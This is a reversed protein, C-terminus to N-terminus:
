LNYLFIDFYNMKIWLGVNNVHRMNIHRMNIHRM